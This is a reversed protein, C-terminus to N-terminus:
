YRAAKVTHAQVATEKQVQVPQEATVMQEPEPVATEMQEPEPVAKATRVQAQQEAIVTQEPAQPEQIHPEWVTDAIDAQVPKHWDQESM